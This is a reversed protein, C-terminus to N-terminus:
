KVRNNVWLYTAIERSSKTFLPFDQVSSSSPVHFGNGNVIVEVIYIYQKTDYIPCENPPPSEWRCLHLRHIRYGWGVPRTHPYKHTHMYTYAHIYIYTYIYTNIHTRTHAHICIHIYTHIHVPIYIRLYVHIYVYIYTHVYIHRYTHICTHIHTHIYTYTHFQLLRKFFQKLM